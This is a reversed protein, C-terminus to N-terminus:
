LNITKSVIVASETEPSTSLTYNNSYEALKRKEDENKKDDELSPNPFDEGWMPLSMVVKNALYLM